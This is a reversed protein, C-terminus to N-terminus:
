AYMCHILMSVKVLATISALTTVLTVAVPTRDLLITVSKVANVAIRVANMLM